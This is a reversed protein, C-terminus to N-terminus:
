LTIDSPLNIMILLFPSIVYKWNNGNKKLRTTNM